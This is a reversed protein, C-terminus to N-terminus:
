SSDRVDSSLQRFPDPLLERKTLLILRLRGRGRSIRSKVTGLAAKTVEAVEEYSMGQVDCLVVALRQDFPLRSLAEQLYAALELREVQQEPSPAGEAVEVPRESPTTAELSLSPRAKRRRLEDYCANAAIRFLWARFSGGKFRDLHRYAALFAEQAADEAAERVALLRLCLSYLPTQYRHVLTNFADLDGAQARHLLQSEDAEM